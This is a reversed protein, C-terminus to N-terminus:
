EVIEYKPKRGLDKLLDNIEKRHDNIMLERDVSADNFIELQKMRNELEKEAKKQETFNLATEIVGILTGNKDKIPASNSLWCGQSEPWHKQNDPTLLYEHSKGDELTQLVPCNVCPKSLKWIEWCKKGKVEDLSFDTSDLYAKNAWVIRQDLDHHAIILPAQDLMKAKFSIDKQSDILQQNKSQLQKNSARLQEEHAALQQNSARLQEESTSLQQNAAKLAQNNEQLNNEMNRLESIDLFDIIFMDDKLPYAKVSLTRDYVDFYEEYEKLVHKEVVDGYIKLLKHLTTDDVIESAKVNVLKSLDFGTQKSASKNAQLHIFDNIKHNSDRLIKCIVIGTPSNEFLRRFKDEELILQQNAARLQQENAALQQNSARLQEEAKKRETIDQTIGFMYAPKGDEDLKLKGKSWIWSTKGDPRKVPYEFDAAGTKALLEIQENHYDHYDPHVLKMVREFSLPDEDHTIGFIEYLEDSWTILNENIDFEWWGLKSYQQAELLRDKTFNLNEEAQKRETIDEGSSLSGIIRGQKDKLITNHWAIIKESGDRAIISYEYYEFQEVEGTVIKKFISKVNKRESTPLFNDFWNKGIIEDAKYGLIEAGKQNILSVVGSENIIVFMVGAVELYKQAKDRETKLEMQQSQLQQNSADLQQNIARLEEENASLQQNAAQLQEELQKLVTIDRIVGETGLVNGEEDCFTKINSLSWFRSGDKRMLELEYNLLKGKVKIESIMSDRDKPNAYLEKMHLGIMEQPSSYGCMRTITENAMIINGDTDARLFGDELLRLIRDPDNVLKKKTM